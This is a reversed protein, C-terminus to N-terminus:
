RPPLLDAVCRFGLDAMQTAPLLPQRFTAKAADAEITSWAGGRVVRARTDEACTVARDQAAGETILAACDETWEMVNGGLGM